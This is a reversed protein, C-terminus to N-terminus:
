GDPGVSQWSAAQEAVVSRVDAAEVVDDRVEVPSTMAPAPRAAVQALAARVGSVSLGTMRAVEVVPEGLTKLAAVAEDAQVELLVADAAADALVRDAKRRAEERVQRARGTRDFFVAVTATVTKEHAILRAQRAAAVQSAQRAAM